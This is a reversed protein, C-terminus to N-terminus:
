PMLGFVGGLCVICLQRNAWGGGSGADADALFDTFSCYDAVSDFPLYSCGQPLEEGTDGGTPVDYDDDIGWCNLAIVSLNQM